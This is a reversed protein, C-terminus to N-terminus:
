VVECTLGMDHLRQLSVAVYAPTIEMGYGVRGLQECAVLTTGSGLFPDCVDGEPWAEMFYAPLGAPFTAPHEHELSKPRRATLRVVSDPTKTEGVVHKRVKQLSGDRARMTGSTTQGASACPQTKKCVKPSATLHFVWEHATQCRPGPAGPVAALKDWVNWGVLIRGAEEEADIWPEWYRLVKKDYVMGLNVFMQATQDMREAWCSFTGCMLGLWDSAMNGAYTRQQLYPPSTFLVGPTAGGLLREVDEACTSDGCMIRHRGVQWVQGREVGWEARLEEARDVQAGPDEAPEYSEHTIGAQEELTALLERVAENKSEVGALLERLTDADADAMAGIPDHTALLKDAESDSLDVVLCPWEVDPAEEARCHGDLIQYGDKTRRVLLADAIGVEALVGRLADRQERPHTRWNKPNPLLESARIRELGKIRDKLKM